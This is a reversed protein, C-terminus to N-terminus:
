RAALRDLVKFHIEKPYVHEINKPNSIFEFVKEINTDLEIKSEIVRM